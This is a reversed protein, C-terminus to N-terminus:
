SIMSDLWDELDEETVEKRVSTPEPPTIDKGKVVEKETVEKVDECDKEPAPNEEEAGTDQQNGVVPKKLNLLQDLEEEDDDEAPPSAATNSSVPTHAKTVAPVKTALKRFEALPPAFDLKSVEQKPTVSVTPLHSPTLVQGLDADLNLRQHVPLEQLIQALAILDVFATSPQSAAFSDMDWEKEESFRFQTFSDGPSLFLMHTWLASSSGGHNEETQRSRHYQGPLRLRNLGDDGEVDEWVDEEEEGRERRRWLVASVLPAWGEWVERAMRHWGSRRGHFCWRLYNVPESVVM